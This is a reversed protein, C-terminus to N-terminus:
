PSTSALYQHSKRPIPSATITNARHQRAVPSSSALSQRPVPPQQSISALYRRPIPSTSALYQSDRICM